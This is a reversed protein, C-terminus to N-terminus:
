SKEGKTLQKKLSALAYRCRSAATNASVSMRKAIEDFTLGLYFKTRIVAQQAPPLSQIASELELPDMAEAKEAAVPDGATDLSRMPPTRMRRKLANLTVARRIYAAPNKLTADPWRQWVVLLTDQVVDEAEARSHLIRAAIAIWLNRDATIFQELTHAPGNRDDM